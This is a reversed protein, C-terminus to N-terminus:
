NKPSSSKECFFLCFFSQRVKLIKEICITGIGDILLYVFHSNVRQGMQFTNSQNRHTFTERTKVVRAFLVSMYSYM